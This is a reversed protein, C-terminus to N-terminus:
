APIRDTSGDFSAPAGAVAAFGKPLIMFDSHRGDLVMCIRRQPQGFRSKLICLSIELCYDPIPQGNDLADKTIKRLLPLDLTENRVAEQIGNSNASCFDYSVKRGDEIAAYSMGLALDASYETASTDRGSELTSIGSQNSARNNAIILLVITNYATAFSKLQGMANKLGEVTDGATEIRQLYDVCIIPTARGIAQLRMTEERAMKLITDIDKGAGDKEILDPNYVFHQAVTDGYQNVANQFANWKASGESIEYARLIELATVDIGSQKWCIRSISKALLQDRGMELNIYLVDRGQRAMNETLIQAFTTKGMAPAAGITVLTGNVFGGDLMNDIEPIGTPVPAYIRTSTVHQVFDLLMAKGTSVNRYEERSELAAQRKELAMRLGLAVQRRLDDPDEIFAANADKCGGYFPETAGFAQLGVDRMKQVLENQADRGPNSGDAKDADNDLAILYCADPNKRALELFRNANTISGLGVVHEAGAQYLTIADLEGECVYVVDAGRVTDANFLVRQKTTMKKRALEYENRPETILRATYSESSRPIIIRKTPDSAPAAPHKWAGCYGLNFRNISDDDIGRDHLYKLAEPSNMLAEHCDRYFASHDVAEPRIVKPQRAVVQVDAPEADITYGARTMAETENCNWLIRLAGLTDTGKDGFCNGSYCQVRKNPFIKLAGTHGRSKGAECIPCFFMNPGAATSRTLPYLDTLPTNNIATRIDKRVM